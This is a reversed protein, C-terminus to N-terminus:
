FASVTTQQILHQSSQHQRYQSQFLLKRSLPTLPRQPFMKILYMKSRCLQVQWLLSWSLVNVSLICIEYIEKINELSKLRHVWKDTCCMLGFMWCVPDAAAHRLKIELCSHFRCHSFTTRIGVSSRAVKTRHWSSPTAIVVHCTLSLQRPQLLELVYCLSFCVLETRRFILFFRKLATSRAYNRLNHNAKHLTNKWSSRRCLM